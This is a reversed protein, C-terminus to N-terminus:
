PMSFSSSSSSSCSPASSCTHVHYTAYAHIVYGRICTAPTFMAPTCMFPARIALTLIAMVPMCALMHARTCTHVQVACVALTSKLIAMTPMLDFYQVTSLVCLVMVICSVIDYSIYKLVIEETDIFTTTTPDFDRSKDNLIDIRMWISLGILGFRTWDLANFLNAFYNHCLIVIARMPRDGSKYGARILNRCQNPNPNPNPNAESKYGLRIHPQLM